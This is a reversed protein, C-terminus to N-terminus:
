HPRKPKKSATKKVEGSDENKTSEVQRKKLVEKINELLVKKSKQM